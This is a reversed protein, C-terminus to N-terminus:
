LDGRRSLPTNESSAAGPAAGIAALRALTDDGVGEERLRPVAAELAALGADWEDLIRAAERPRDTLGGAAASLSAILPWLSPSKVRADGRKAESALAELRAFAGKLGDLRPELALTEATFTVEVTCPRDPAQDVARVVITQTRGDYSWADEAEVRDYPRRRGNVEVSKAPLRSLLRFEYDYALPKAPSADPRPSVEIRMTRSGNEAPAGFAWSVTPRAKRGDGGDTGGAEEDLAASGGDGGPAVLFVIGRGKGSAPNSAGDSRMPVIAGGRLWAPSEGARFTRVCTRGGDLLAGTAREYWRAGDALSPLRVRVSALGTRLDNTLVTFDAQEGACATAASLFLSLGGALAAAVGEPFRFRVM